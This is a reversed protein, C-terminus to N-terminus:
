TLWRLSLRAELREDGARKAQFLGDAAPAFTFRTTAYSAALGLFLGGAQGTLRARLGVGATLGFATGGPFAAGPGILHATRTWWTATLSGLLQLRRGLPAEGLLGVEPGGLALDPLGQLAPSVSAWREAWALTLAAAPEEAWPPATRAMLGLRQEGLRTPREEGEVLTVAGVSETREAILGLGAAWGRTFPAAPHLELRGSWAPGAPVLHDRLPAPGPSAGEFRLERHVLGAAVELALWPAPPAAPPAQLELGAATLVAAGAPARAAPSSTPKAASPAVALRAPPRAPLPAQAPASAAGARVRGTLEERVVALAGAPALGRADLPLRWTVDAFYADTFVSLALVQQGARRSVAGAVVGEAGARRALGLDFGGDRHVQSWPVCVGGCLAERLQRTLALSAEGELPALALRPPAEASTSHSALGLVLSLLGAIM